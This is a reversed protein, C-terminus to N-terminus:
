ESRLVAAPQIRAARRGPGAALLNAVVLAVPIVFLTAALAIPPSYVLPFSEALSRWVARGFAIGLPVGVVVGIAALLTAQWAIALRSQRRGFGLARLVALEGRRRNVTTVLAHALTAVALLALFVGLVLPLTRLKGLAIVDPSSVPPGIELGEAGSTAVLEQRDAGPAVNMLMFDFGENNSVTGRVVGLASADIWAGDTYTSHPSWPLFAKGVVAMPARDPGVRVSDGVRLGLFDLTAPGFAIEAPGRPARGDVVVFRMDGKVQQVSWGPVSEGDVVVSRLWRARTAAEVQPQAILKGLPADPLLGVDGIVVANWVIGSRQPRSVADDVGARFTFCAVVGMVGAIAGIIASRVPVARRGRGPELALRTGIAVVPPAGSLTAWRGIASPRVSRAEGRVIRWGAVVSAVAVVALFAALPTPGLVTWDVHVGPDLEYRRAVGIPFRPSLGVAVGFTVVAAVLGTTSAPLVLGAALLRNGAGMAQLTELDDARATVARALAQGVLTGGGLLVALAFLWLGRAELDTTDRAQRVEGVLNITNTPTGTIRQVDRELRAIDDEGNRLRVFMNTFHFAGADIVDRAFAPTSQWFPDDSVSKSIGVVRLERVISEGGVTEGEVRLTSGVPLGRQDRLNEDVVAEDARDPEPHRGAVLVDDMLRASKADAPLLTPGDYGAPGVFFVRFDAAASVEPLEAVAVRQSRDFDESNALVGATLAPAAAEYAPIARETRRAGAAAAAALGVVLGALVGLVVWSLWRRRLDARVWLRVAAM